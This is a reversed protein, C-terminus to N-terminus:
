KGNQQPLVVLAFCAAPRSDAAGSRVDPHAVGSADPPVGACGSGLRYAPPDIGWARPSVFHGELGRWMARRMESMMGVDTLLARAQGRRTRRSQTGQGM